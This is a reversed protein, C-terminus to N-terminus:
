SCATPLTQPPSPSSCLGTLFLTCGVTTVRHLTHMVFANYRSFHFLLRKLSSKHSQLSLCQHTWDFVGLVTRRETHSLGMGCWYQAHMVQIGLSKAVAVSADELIAVPDFSTSTVTSTPTTGEHRHEQQVLEAALSLYRYMVLFTIRQLRRSVTKILRPLAHPHDIIGERLQAIPFCRLTAGHETARAGIVPSVPLSGISTLSNLVALWSVLCQGPQLVAVTSGTDKDFVELVGQHLEFM